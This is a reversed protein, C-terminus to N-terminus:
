YCCSFSFCCISYTKKIWQHSRNSRLKSELKVIICFVFSMKFKYWKQVIFCTNMNWFSGLLKYILHLLCLRIETFGVNRWIYFGSAIARFFKVWGSLNRVIFEDILWESLSNSDKQFGNTRTKWTNETDCKWIKRGWMRFRKQDYM